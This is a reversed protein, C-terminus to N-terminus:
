LLEVCVGYPSLKGPDDDVALIQRRRRKWQSREKKNGHRPTWEATFNNLDKNHDFAQVMGEWTERDFTNTFNPDSISLQHILQFNHYAWMQWSM